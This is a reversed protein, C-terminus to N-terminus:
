LRITDQRLLRWEQAQWGIVTSPLTSKDESNQDSPFWRAMPTLVEPFHSTISVLTRLPPQGSRNVSTTALPGTQELILQAITSCPVRLGITDPTLPHMCSPVRDSVPLVLTLAGPWHQDAVATWRSLEASTGRVYPWLQRPSAGMLILSKEPSRQKAAYILASQDPRVALAPVTDTPFIVLQGARAAAVLSPTSVQPM